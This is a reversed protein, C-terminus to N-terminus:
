ASTEKRKTMTLTNTAKQSGNSPCFEFVVKDMLKKIFYLGLGGTHRDELCATTDPLPIGNPDFAQGQDRLIITLKDQDPICTCEINGNGEGHYAHEIINTCAEDVAIQVAYTAKENLGVIEAAQTVLGIIRALNEFRAPYSATM